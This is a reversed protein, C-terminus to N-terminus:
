FGGGIKAVFINGISDFVIWDVADVASNRSVCFSGGVNWFCLQFKDVSLGGFIRLAKIYLAM